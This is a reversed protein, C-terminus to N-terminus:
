ALLKKLAAKGSKLNEFAGDDVLRGHDLVLVRDFQEALEAHGLAWFVTRGKMEDLVGTLISQELARDLGSTPEDMVLVDPNKMLARAVAIRQKQSYSLRAGSAGVEFELGKHILADEMGSELAAERVLETVRAQARAQEYVPRGFLINDQISLEPSFKTADYFEVVGRDAFRRQFEIRAAVIQQQMAEDPIGLRHRATVVGLALSVFLARETSTLGKAGRDNMKRLVARFEILEEPSVLSYEAFLPSDPSENAFLEIMLRAVEIGATELEGLLGVEDLMRRVDANTMLSAPAFKRDIPTGFVINEGVSINSHYRDRDFLEVLPAYEAEKVRERVRERAELVMAPLTPDVKPSVRSVLGFTLLEKDMEVMRLIRLARGKLNDIEEGSLDVWSAEIDDLSNGAAVADQTGLDDHRVEDANTPRHKLGYLLNHLLTGSFVHANRSAFAIRRGVVAVHATLLSTSGIALKGSTPFHLRAILRALEGKGSEGAGVLAVHQGQPVELDLREIPVGGTEDVYSLGSAVLPGELRPVKDPVTGLLESGLMAPPQFQSIVQEYKVRVDEKTEYWKLLEKWPDIIDKYAALVAVLAGISLDGKIVFYGGVAYFFFPTIQALFNNLFKVFFKRKYIDLRIRYITGLRKSADALEYRLTNNARIEAAGGIVDGIRDSLERTTLIRRKSLQNIRRQLRPILWAQLPYLAVAAVGLWFEQMFIFLMYTVLVGGQFVPLAISEGIFGGIPDTEATIMPIIEGASTKKFHPLPFRLVAEYLQYRLRRVMREGVVGRYVNLWYKIAGNLTILALLAFSLFMLYGIQTPEWGFLDSPIDKGGLARNVIQKPIELNVYILPFSGITVILLWVQDRKTHQWIY